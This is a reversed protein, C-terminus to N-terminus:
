VPTMSKPLWTRNWTFPSQIQAARWVLNRYLGVITSCNNALIDKGEGTQSRRLYRQFALGDVAYQALINKVYKLALGPNQAAYARTGSEGWALFLDGNEYSPFPWNVRPHVEEKAYSSFCLPWFFLKERQMLAEIQDLIATKREPEDCLGYAIASFNVPVVLNSGHVSGMRTVGTPTASINPM